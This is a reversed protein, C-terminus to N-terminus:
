ATEGRTPHAAVAETWVEVLETLLGDAAVAFSAAHYTEEGLVTHSRLVSRAGGDVVEDVHFVWDGLYDANLAVFGDRDFREGTHLLTASFSPALLAALAAWDRGSVAAGYRELLRATSDTDSM